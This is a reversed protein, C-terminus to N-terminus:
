TETPKEVKQPSLLGTGKMFDKLNLDFYQKFTAVIEEVTPEELMVGNQVVRTVLGGDLKIEANKFVAVLLEDYTKDDLSGLSNLMGTVDIDSEKLKAGKTKIQQNAVSAFLPALKFAVKITDRGSSKTLTITRM